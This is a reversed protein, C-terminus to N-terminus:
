SQTQLARILEAAMRAGDGDRIKIRAGGPLEVCLSCVSQLTRDVTVETLRLGTGKDNRAATDRRRRAQQWSAFTTYKIGHDAAFKAGSTGSSEFEELLAGRQQATRRVRGLTDVKLIEEETEESELANTM